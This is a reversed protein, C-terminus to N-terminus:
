KYFIGDSKNVANKNLSNIGAECNKKSYQRFYNCYKNRLTEHAVFRPSTESVTLLKKCGALVSIVTVAIIIQKM